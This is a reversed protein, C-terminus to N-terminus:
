DYVLFIKYQPNKNRNIIWCYIKIWNDIKEETKWKGRLVINWSYVYLLFVSNIQCADFLFCVYSLCFFSFTFLYFHGFTTPRTSNASVIHIYTWDKVYVSSLNGPVLFYSWICLDALSLLFPLFYFLLFLLLLLLSFLIFYYLLLLDFAKCCRFFIYFQERRKETDMLLMDFSSNWNMETESIFINQYKYIYEKEEAYTSSIPYLTNLSNITRSVELFVFLEAASGCPDNRWRKIHWNGRDHYSGRGDWTTQRSECGLMTEDCKCSFEPLMKTDRASPEALNIVIFCILEAWILNPSFSEIRNYLM